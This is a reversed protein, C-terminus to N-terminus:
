EHSNGSLSVISKRDPFDTRDHHHTHRHNNFEEMSNYLDAELDRVQQREKEYQHPFNEDEVLKLLYHVQAIYDSIAQLFSEFLRNCEDCIM